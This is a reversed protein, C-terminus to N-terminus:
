FTYFEVEWCATACGMNTVGCHTNIRGCSFNEEEMTVNYCGPGPRLPSFRPTKENSIRCWESVLNHRRIRTLALLRCLFCVPSFGGRLPVFLSLRLWIDASKEIEWLELRVGLLLFCQAIYLISNERFHQFYIRLRANSPVRGVTQGKFLYAHLM